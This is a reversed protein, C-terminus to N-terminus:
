GRVSFRDEVVSIIVDALVDKDLTIELKSQKEKNSGGNGNSSTLATIIADLKTMLKDVINTKDQENFSPNIYKEINNNIFPKMSAGAFISFDDLFQGSMGKAQQFAEGLATINDKNLSNFSGANRSITEMMSSISTLNAAFNAPANKLPEIIEQNFEELPSDTFLDKIGEGIGAFIDGIGKGVGILLQMAGVGVGIGIGLAAIAVALGGAFKVMAPGLNGLTQVFVSVGPTAGLASTGLATTATAAIGTETAVVAAAKGFGLLKPIAKLIQTPLSMYGGILNRTVGVLALTIPITWGEFTESLKQFGGVITQLIDVIPEIAIMLSDFVSKLREGITAARASREEMEKQTVANVAMLSNAEQLSGTFVKTAVSLDSIGAATAIAQREHQNLMMWNKGSAIFGEHITKVRQAENQNLLQLTNLYPGGLVANLRGVHQAASEFTDYQQALGILEQTQINLAKATAAVELFVSKTLAGWKALTPISQVFDAVTKSWSQGLNQALGIIIGINGKAQEVTQGLADKFFTLAKNQSDLSVGMRNLVSGFKILDDQNQISLKSFGSFNDKFSSWTESIEKMSVNLTRVEKWNRTITDTVNDIQGTARMFSVSASDLQKVGDILHTKFMAVGAVFLNLPRLINGLAHGFTKLSAVILIGDPDKGSFMADLAKFMPSSSYMGGFFKFNTDIAQFMHDIKSESIKHLKEFEDQLFQGRKNYEKVVKDVDIEEQIKSFLEKSAPDEGIKDFIKTLQDLLRAAENKDTSESATKMQIITEKLQRKEDEPLVSSAQKRASVLEELKKTNEKLADKLPDLLKNVYSREEPSTYQMYTNPGGISQQSSKTTGRSGRRLEELIQQLLEDTSAM